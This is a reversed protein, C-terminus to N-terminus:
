WITGILPAVYLARHLHDGKGEAPVDVRFEITNSDTKPTITRRISSKGIAGASCISRCAFKSPRINEKRNRLHIEYTEELVNGSILQFNTQTREGVLDFANGLYLQVNRGEAHPRHQERRDAAGLWRCRGSLRPHEPLCRRSWAAKKVRRSNLIIRCMPSAPRGMISTPSRAATAITPSAPTTSSSPIRAAVEAATVFEVQKTENEGVTVPRQIEYLKYENFDRQAVAPAAAPAGDADTMACGYQESLQPCVTSMGAVLKVQADTYAAGSTNNLTVWGNLDLSQNDNALLVNYDATWNM